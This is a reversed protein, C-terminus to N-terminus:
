NVWTSLVYPVTLASPCKMYIFIIAHFIVSVRYLLILIFSDSLSKRFLIPTFYLTGIRPCNKFDHGFKHIAEFFQGFNTWAHGYKSRGTCGSIVMIVLHCLFNGGFQYSMAITDDGTPPGPDHFGAVLPCM